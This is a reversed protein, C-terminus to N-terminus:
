EFSQLGEPPVHKPESANVGQRIHARPPVKFVESYLKGYERLFSQKDCCYLLRQASSKITGPCPIKDCKLRDHDMIQYNEPQPINPCIFVISNKGNDADHVMKWLFMPVAVQRQPMILHLPQQMNYRDPFTFSGYSGSIVVRRSYSNRALVKKVSEEVEVWLNNSLFWQPFM